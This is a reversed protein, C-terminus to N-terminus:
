GDKPPPQGTPTVRPPLIATPQPIPTQSPIPTITPPQSPPPTNSPTFTVTPTLTITPTDTARPTETPTPTITPTDTITPTFTITPTDSATPSPGPTNTPTLQAVIGGQPDTPTPMPTNSVEATPAFGPGTVIDIGSRTLTLDVRQGRDGFTSQPEGNFVMDLAEANSATLTITENAPFELVTGPRAIGVFRETGDTALRVWSRQRFQLTVLLGQGSYLQQLGDPVPTSGSVTRTPPPTFTFTPPLQALIDPSTPNSNTTEFPNEPAETILQTIVFVIVALSAGGVVLRLLWGFLGVGQRAGTGMRGGTPIPTPIPLKPQTDTVTRPAIPIANLPQTDRKDRRNRNKKRRSDRRARQSLDYLASEYYQVILTEDLGLYRAYNRIFGVIQVPSSEAIIFDGLEFAELIRRRIRLATEADELTLEKTERTQRLYRGLAQADM